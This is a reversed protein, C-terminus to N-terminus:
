QPLVAGIELTWIQAPTLAANATFCDQLYGQFQDVSTGGPAYVGFTGGSSDTYGPALTSWIVLQGNVYLLSNTGDWTYIVLIGREISEYSGNVLTASSTIKLALAQNTGAFSLIQLANADHAMAFVLGASSNGGPLHNIVCGVSFPGSAPLAAQPISIYEGNVVSNAGKYGQILVSSAYTAKIGGLIPPAGCLPPGPSGTPKVAVGSPLATAFLGNTIDDPLTPPCTSPVPAPTGSSLQWFHTISALAEAAAELGFSGAGCIVYVSNSGCLKGYGPVTLGNGHILCNNAGTPTITIGTGVASPCGVPPGTNGNSQAITRPPSCLALALLFLAAFIATPKV